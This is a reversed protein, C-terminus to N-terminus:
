EPPAMMHPLLFCTSKLLDNQGVSIYGPLKATIFIREGKGLAGATEYLIGDGGVIADFFAFADTNQVVEYDKGLKSGLVDGSDRRYTFFSDKSIIKSGDDLLHINPRKIVEFDLGAFKLAEASSPYNEIITGLGHWAKEQVSFFSYMNTQQNLHLQHSM